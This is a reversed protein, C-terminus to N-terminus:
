IRRIARARAVSRIRDNTRAIRHMWARRKAVGGDFTGERRTETASRSQTSDTDETSETGTGEALEMAKHHPTMFFRERAASSSSVGPTANACCCASHECRAISLNGSM